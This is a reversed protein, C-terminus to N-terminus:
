RQGMLTFASWNMPDPYEAMTDLMAQRLAQSKDRTNPTNPANPVEQLHHYFRTM